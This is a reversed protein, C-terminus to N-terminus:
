LAECQMPQINHQGDVNRERSAKYWQQWKLCARVAASSLLKSSFVFHLCCHSSVAPASAQRQPSSRTHMERMRTWGGRKDDEAFAKLRQVSSVAKSTIRKWERVPKRCPTFELIGSPSTKKDPCIVEEPLVCRCEQVRRTITSLRSSM